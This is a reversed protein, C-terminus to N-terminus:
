RACASGTSPASRCRRRRPASTAPARRHTDPPAASRSASSPRRAAPAHAGALHPTERAAILQLLDDIAADALAALAVLAGVLQDLRQLLRRRRHSDARHLRQLAHVEREGADQAHRADIRLLRRARAPATTCPPGDASVVTSTRPRGFGSCAAPRSPPRLQQLDLAQPLLACRIVSRLSACNQFSTPVLAVVRM